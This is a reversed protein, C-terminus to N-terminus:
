ETLIDCLLSYGDSRRIIPEICLVLTRIHIVERREYRDFSGSAQPLREAVDRLDQILAVISEDEGLAATLSGALDCLEFWNDTIESQVLLDANKRDVDPASILRKWLTSDNRWAVAETRRDTCLDSM